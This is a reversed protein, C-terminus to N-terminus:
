VTVTVDVAATVEHRSATLRHQGPTLSAVLRAGTGLSGDVSSTWNIDDFAPRREELHYAQAALRVVNGSVIAAAAPALIWLVWGKPAVAFSPSRLRASTFGDTVILELLCADGGAFGDMDFTVEGGPSPLSVPTWTAGGDSSYALAALCPGVSARWKVTQRGAAISRPVPWEVDFVAPSRPAQREFVVRGGHLVRVASAGQPFAVLGFAMRATPRGDPGNGPLACPTQLVLRTTALPRRSRGIVEVEIEGDDRRPEGEVVFGPELDFRGDDHLIGSFTLARM